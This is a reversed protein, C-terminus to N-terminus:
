VGGSGGGGGGGSGGGGGGHGGFSVTIEQAYRSGAVTSPSGPYHMLSAIQTPRDAGQLTLLTRETLDAISGPGQHGALKTGNVAVISITRQPGMLGSGPASFGGRVARLCPLGALTPKLGSRSLFALAALPREAVAGISIDHRACAPLSIGPDSLVASQLESRSLLFADGATSGILGAERRAGKPHLAAYLQRWGQLVPQVAVTGPDGAPAISFRMQGDREGHLDSLTGLVTGQTVVAGRRLPHRGALAKLRRERVAAARAYPNGPRAFMRVKGPAQGEGYGAQASASGAEGGAPSGAGKGGGNPQLTVPQHGATAPASPAPDGASAAGVLVAGPVQGQSQMSAPQYTRKVSGLDAYTFTNGYVDRLVVYRGLRHSRGLAVIRGDQVAVVPASRAASIEAFRQPQAKAARGAASPPPAPVSGPLPAPRHAGSALHGSGVGSGSGSGFGSGSGSGAGATSPGGTSSGGPRVVLASAARGPAPLLSEGTALAGAVPLRGEALGTLTAIVETPYHGILQARLLVSQVYAQSHNYAFIAGSLSSAAGAAKLYRAAAFIADLPNYPDAYGADQVDVGYQLWTEPMFQMWGIAGATSVSLDNGYNTEVENIAALVQWPVGYQAAAAQYIPLLFLPIRYYDLAQVSVAPNGLLSTLAEAQSAVLQPPPAIGNNASGAGGSSGPGGPGGAHTHGPHGGAAHRHQQQGHQRRSGGGAAPHRRAGGVEGTGTASAGQPKQGTIALGGRGSGGPRGSGTATGTTTTQAPPQTGEASSTSTQATTTTSGPQPVSSTETTSSQSSSSSTSTSSSTSSSSGAGTSTGASSTSTSTSTAASSTSTSSSLSTSTSLTGASSRTATTTSSAAPGGGKTRTTSTTSGSAAGAAHASAAAGPLGLGAVTLGGGTLLSVAARRAWRGTRSM